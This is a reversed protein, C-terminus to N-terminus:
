NAIKEYMSYELSSNMSFENRKDNIIRKTSVNVFTCCSSFLFYLLLLFKSCVERKEPSSFRNGQMANM